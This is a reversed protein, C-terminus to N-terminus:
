REHAFVALLVTPRLRAMRWAPWAAALASAVLALGTLRAYDAPFLHMPLRWGFAAVNVVALLAWSLALGLPVAVLTTLGALLISRGLDLRALRGQTVGMAWVPAVQPLRMAALTLLNMLMAFGAVGLTLVNLAGTVAFTRDFVAVSLAKVAAQDTIAGEPLGLDAVLAQRLGQPDPSRLAFRRAVVGPFASDFLPDALIVQGVPNGYDGVVGAVPLVLGPAVGVADGPALGLRRALQENVVVARGEAVADWAGPVADLFRWNERYTQGVRIGWIKASQGM